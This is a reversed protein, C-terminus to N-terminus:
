SCKTSTLTDSPVRKCVHVGGSAAAPNMNKPINSWAVAFM